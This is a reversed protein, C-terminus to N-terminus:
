ACAFPRGSPAATLSSIRLTSCPAPSGIGRSALLLCPHSTLGFPFRTTVGSITRSNESSGIQTIGRGVQEIDVSNDSKEVLRVLVMLCRRDPQVYGTPLPSQAGKGLGPHQAKKRRRCSAVVRNTFGGLHERIQCAPWAIAILRDVCIPVFERLRNSPPQMTMPLNRVCKQQAEGYTLPQHKGCKVPRHQVQGTLM